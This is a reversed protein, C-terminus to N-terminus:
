EQKGKEEVYFWMSNFKLAVVLLIKGDDLYAQDLNQEQKVTVGSPLIEKQDAGPPINKPPRQNSSQQQIVTPYSSPSIRQAQSPRSLSPTFDSCM